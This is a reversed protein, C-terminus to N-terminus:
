YIFSYYIIKMLINIKSYKMYIYTIYLLLIQTINLKMYLYYIINKKKKNDFYM